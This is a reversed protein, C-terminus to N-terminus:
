MMCNGTINLQWYTISDTAYFTIRIPFNTADQSYRAGICTSPFGFPSDSLTQFQRVEHAEEKLLLGYGKPAKKLLLVLHQLRFERYPNFRGKTGCAGLVGVIVKHSLHVM